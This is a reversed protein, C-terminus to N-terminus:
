PTLFKAANQAFDNKNIAGTHGDAFLCYYSGTNRDDPVGTVTLASPNGSLYLSPVLQWCGVIRGGYPQGASMITVINAPSSISLASKGSTATASPPPIFVLTNGGYDGLNHHSSSDLLPDMMAASATFANGSLENKNASPRPLYATIKESWYPTHYGFSSLSPYTNKNDVLYQAVGVGIARLNAISGTKKASLRVASLTTLLIAALIGVIAICALLEM